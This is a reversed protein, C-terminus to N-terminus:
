GRDALAEMGKLSFPDPFDNKLTPNLFRAIETEEINRASLLRAVIEPVDYTRAIREVLSLEADPMVWRSRMLSQEVNFLSDLM